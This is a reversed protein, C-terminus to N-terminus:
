IEKYEDLTDLAFAHEQCLEDLKKEMTAIVMRQLDIVKAQGVCLARLPTVMEHHYRRIKEEYSLDFIDDKSM